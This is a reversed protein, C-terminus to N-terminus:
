PEWTPQQGTCATCSAPASVRFLSRARAHLQKPGDLAHARGAALVPYRKGPTGPGRLAPLGNGLVKKASSRTEQFAETATEVQTDM